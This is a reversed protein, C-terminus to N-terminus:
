WSAEASLPWAHIRPRTVVAEVLLREHLTKSILVDTSVIPFSHLVHRPSKNLDFTYCTDDFSAKPKMLMTSFWVFYLLDKSKRRDFSILRNQCDVDTVAGFHALGGSLMVCGSNFNCKAWDAISLVPTLRVLLLHGEDSLSLIAVFCVKNKSNREPTSGNHLTCVITEAFENISLARRYNASPSLVFPRPTELTMTMEHLSSLEIGLCADESQVLGSQVYLVECIVLTPMLQCKFLWVLTCSVGLQRKLAQLYYGSRALSILYLELFWITLPLENSRLLAYLIILSTQHRCTQCQCTNNFNGQVFWPAIESCHPFSLGQPGIKKELFAACIAKTGFQKFFKLMSQNSQLQNRNM